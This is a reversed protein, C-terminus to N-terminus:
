VSCAAIILSTLLHAGQESIATKYGTFDPHTPFWTATLAGGGGPQLSANVMWYVPFLMICLFFIGLVTNVWTRQKRRKSSTRAPRRTPAITPVSNVTTM